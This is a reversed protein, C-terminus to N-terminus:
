KKVKLIFGTGHVNCIEVKPEFGPKYKNRRGGNPNLHDKSVKEINIYSRLKTLFVDMSRGVSYDEDGWIEKLILERPLLKNQHECLLKLLEAEKRTLSRSVTPHDLQLASYNFVFDGFKYVIEQYLDSSKQVNHRTRRLIAEIRLALEETSFPKAIYDDCGLKFGKVKDEKNAKATLFIVPIEKDIKRVEQILTFGDKDPMMVDFICIDFNGKNFAKLASTGDSFDMVNYSLMELYDKLVYRLNQSDEVLMIKGKESKM